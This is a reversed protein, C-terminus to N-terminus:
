KRGTPELTVGALSGAQGFYAYVKQAWASNSLESWENKAFHPANSLKERTIDAVLTKQDTSFKLAGPPLAYYNDGLSM